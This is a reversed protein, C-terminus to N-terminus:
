PGTFLDCLDARTAARGQMQVFVDHNLQLNFCSCNCAFSSRFYVECVFIIISAGCFAIFSSQLLRIDYKNYQM